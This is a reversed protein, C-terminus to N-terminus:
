ELEELLRSRGTGADGDVMALGARRGRRCERWADLLRGIQRERGVLPPRRIREVRIADDLPAVATGGLSQARQLVNSAAEAGPDLQMALQARAAAADVRGMRVLAEAASVLAHVSRAGWGAREAALWDEFAPARAIGFGQLFESRVLEAAEIWQGRAALAEFDDVDLRVVDPALRIREPTGEIGPGATRRLLRVAESLSHRADAEPRDGWLLGALHSRTRSRGPSRALYILLALPKRWLLEPAPLGGNVTLEVPGLTRCAIM